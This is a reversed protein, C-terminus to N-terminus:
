FKVPSLLTTTAATLTYSRSLICSRHISATYLNNNKHKLVKFALLILPKPTYTINQFVLPATVANLACLHSLILAEMGPLRLLISIKQTQLNLFSTFDVTQSRLHYKSVRGM